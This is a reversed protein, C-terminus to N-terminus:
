GCRGCRVVVVALASCGVGDISVVVGGDEACGDGSVPSGAGFNTGQVIIFYHTGNPKPGISLSAITPPEFVVVPLQGAAQGMVDVVVYVASALVNQMNAQWNPLSFTLLTDSVVSLTSVSMPAGIAGSGHPLVGMSASGSSCWATSVGTVNSDFSPVVWAHVSTFSVGFGSGTVRFTTTTMGATSLTSPFVSTVVPARYSLTDTLFVAGTM